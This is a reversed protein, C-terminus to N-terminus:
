IGEERIFQVEDGDAWMYVKWNTNSTVEDIFKDVIESNVGEFNKQFDVRIVDANYTEKWKEFYNDIANEIINKENINLCQSLIEMQHNTIENLRYSSVKSM